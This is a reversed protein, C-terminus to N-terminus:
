ENKEHFCQIAYYKYEYIYAYYIYMYKYKYTYKCAYLSSLELNKGRQISLELQTNVNLYFILNNIFVHM